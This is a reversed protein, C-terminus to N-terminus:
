AFSGTSAHFDHVRAYLPYVLEIPRSRGFVEYPLLVANPCAALADLIAPDELMVTPAVIAQLADALRVERDFQVEITACRDDDDRLSPDAILRAYGRAELRSIPLDREAVAPRQFYYNGNTEFFAAVIRGPLDAGTDLEFANRDLHPGLLDHYRAFGGSDFPVVRIAAHLVSPDFVLGVPWLEEIRGATASPNSRYAPRGYFLYLLEEGYVPCASPQLDGAQMIGVGREVNTCHLLSMSARAPMVSELFAKLSM